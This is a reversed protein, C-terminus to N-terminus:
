TGYIRRLVSNQVEQAKKCEEKSLSRLPFAYELQSRIFQVYKRISAIPRDGSHNAGVRGLWSATKLAKDVRHENSMELDVGKATM